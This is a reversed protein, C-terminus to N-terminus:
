NFIIDIHKYQDDQTVNVKFKERKINTKILSSIDLDLNDQDIEIVGVSAPVRGRLILMDTTRASTFISFLCLFLGVYKM